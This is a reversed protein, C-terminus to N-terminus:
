EDGERDTWKEMWLDRAEEVAVRKVEYHDEAFENLFDQLARIYKDGDGTIAEVISTERNIAIWATKPKM